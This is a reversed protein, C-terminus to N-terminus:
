LDQCEGGVLFIGGGPCPRCHVSGKGGKGAKVGGKKLEHKIVGEGRGAWVM